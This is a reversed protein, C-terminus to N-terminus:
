SELHASIESIGPALSILARREPAPLFFLVAIAKIPRLFFRALFYTVGVLSKNGGDANKRRHGSDKQGLVRGLVVMEERMKSFLPGWEELDKFFSTGVGGLRIFLLDGSRLVIYLLSYMNTVSLCITIQIYRVTCFAERMAVM